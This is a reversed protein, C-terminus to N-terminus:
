RLFRPRQDIRPHFHLESEEPTMSLEEDDLKCHEKRVCLKGDESKQILSRPEFPREGCGELRMMMAETLMSQREDPSEELESKIILAISAADNYYVRLTKALADFNLYCDDFKGATLGEESGRIRVKINNDSVERRSKWLWHRHPLMANLIESM